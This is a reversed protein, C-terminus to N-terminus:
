YWINMVTIALGTNNDIYAKIYSGIVNTYKGKLLLRDYYANLAIEDFNPSAERAEGILRNIYLDNSNTYLLPEDRRKDYKEIYEPLITSTLLCEPKRYSGLVYKECTIITKLYLDLKANIYLNEDYLVSDAIFGKGDSVIIKVAMYSPDGFKESDAPHLHTVICKNECGEIYMKKEHFDSLTIGCELVEDINKVSVYFYVKM